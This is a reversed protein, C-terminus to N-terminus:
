PSAIDLGPEIRLKGTLHVIEQGYSIRKVEYWLYTTGYPNGAIATIMGAITAKPIRFFTEGTTTSGHQGALNTQELLETTSDPYRKVVIKVADASIDLASTGDTLTFLWGADAGYTAVINQFQPSFATAVSGGVGALESLRNYRTGPLAAVTYTQSLNLIANVIPM